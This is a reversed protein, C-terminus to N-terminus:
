RHAHPLAPPRRVTGGTGAHGQGGRDLLDACDDPTAAYRPGFMARGYFLEMLKPDLAWLEVLGARVAPLLGRIVSWIISGKGAGPAGAVLVHTGHVKLRWPQGDEQKGVELRSWRLSRSQQLSRNQSRPPM